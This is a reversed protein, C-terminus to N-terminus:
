CSVRISMWWKAFHDMEEPTADQKLSNAMQSIWQVNGKVYGKSPNIRDLTGIFKRSNRKMGRTSSSGIGLKIKTNFVPCIGTWLEQLYDSTLDFPLNRKKARNRINIITVRFPNKARWNKECRAKTRQRWLKARANNKAKNKKRARRREERVKEPYLELQKRRYERLYKKRQETLAM